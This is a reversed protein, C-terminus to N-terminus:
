RGQPQVWLQSYWYWSSGKFDSATMTYKSRRGILPHNAQVEFIGEERNVIKVQCDVVDPAYCRLSGNDIRNDKLQFRLRPPNNEHINNSAPSIVTVPLSNMFLKSRFEELSTHSGGIPFRPLRYFDQNSAMVGSQQGFAAAFGTGKLLNVLDPDFEGYPYAFLRPATGLHTELEQQASMIDTLIRAQWESDTEGPLRDLLFAHSASHNGIEVGERQLQQLEAWNLYDGDGITATSVFLTVPYAYQRILPWGDTLFSRFADDVTIVACPQPLSVGQQMSEVVQGLRLVPIQLTHLLELQTRLDSSMINTSPYRADNFRHYIFVNAQDADAYAACAFSILLTLLGTLIARM